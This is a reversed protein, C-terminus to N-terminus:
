AARDHRFRPQAPRIRTAGAVLALLRPRAGAALALAAQAAPEVMLQSLWTARRVQAGLEGALQRQFTEPARGALFADAARRASHLAIAMGEGAFSPIVAAQDGLRWVGDAERAVFGYPLAFAALPRDWCPEAGSLREALTPNAMLSSSLEPWGGHRALCSKRVLLCLNLRGGEVPELGAYGGDFLLIEVRGDIAEGGRWHMKFGILDGQAGEPRKWGRLDHKGTALFAHRAHLAEGEALIARWGEGERELGTVRLGRRVEAGAVAASALLAEDLSRRSLSAAPFPLATAATRAEHILGVERIPIAGLAFVDLGLAELDEVAEWSLFEGCVKDHPGIEREVLVVARGSRALRIALAAGAPGGGIVLAEIM